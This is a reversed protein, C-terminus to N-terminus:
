PMANQGSLAAKQLPTGYTAQMGSTQRSMDGGRRWGGVAKVSPTGGM